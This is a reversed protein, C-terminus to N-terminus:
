ELGGIGENEDLEKMEGTVMFVIRECINTVRDAARELNHAAWLLLTSQDMKHPDAMILDLLERYIGNYLGDMEDDEQPIARAMKVDRRIFASLARGLMDTAKDAMMPIDMLPKILPTAGILLSIKSIGKAYDGIRELETAIELVAALIRVDGAMPQQMAILALANAEIAFRKSNIASDAAIIRKAGALDRRALLDVSELLARQVM